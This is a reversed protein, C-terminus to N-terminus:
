SLCEIVKVSSRPSARRRARELQRRDYDDDAFERYTTQFTLLHYSM